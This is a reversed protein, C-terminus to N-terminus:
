IPPPRSLQVDLPCLLHAGQGCGGQEEQAEWWSSQPGLCTPMDQCKSGSWSELGRMLSWTSLCCVSERWKSQAASHEGSIGASPSVSPCGHGAAETGSCVWVERVSPSGDEAQCSEHEAQSTRPEGAGQVGLGATGLVQRSCPIFRALHTPRKGVSPHCACVGSDGCCSRAGGPSM